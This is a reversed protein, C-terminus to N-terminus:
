LLAVPDRDLAVRMQHEKPVPFRQVLYRSVKTLDRPHEAKLLLHWRWRNKIREVPAPAPGIIQVDLKKEDVLRHLWAAAQTALTVTADETLGSILAAPLGVHFGVITRVM